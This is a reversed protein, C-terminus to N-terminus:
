SCSCDLHAAHARGWGKHIMDATISACEAWSTIDQLSSHTLQPCKMNLDCDCGGVLDCWYLPLLPCCCSLLYLVPISYLADYSLMPPICFFSLSNSLLSQFVSSVLPKIVPIAFFQIFLILPLLFNFCVFIIYSAIPCKSM